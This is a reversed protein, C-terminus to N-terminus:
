GKTGEELNKMRLVIERAVDSHLNQLGEALNRLVVRVEVAIVAKLEHSKDRGFSDALTNCILRATAEVFERCPPDSAYMGEWGARIWIAIQNRLKENCRRGLRTAVSDDIAEVASLIVQRCYENHLELMEPPLLQDDGM